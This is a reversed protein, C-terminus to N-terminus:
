RLVKCFNWSVSGSFQEPALAVRVKIKLNNTKSIYYSDVFKGVVPDFLVTKLCYNPKCTDM